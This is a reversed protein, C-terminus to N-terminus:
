TCFPTMQARNEVRGVELRNRHHECGFFDDVNSQIMKLQVSPFSNCSCWLCQPYTEPAFHLSGPGTKMKAPELGIKTTDPGPFTMLM